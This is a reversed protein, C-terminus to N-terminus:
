CVEKPAILAYTMKLGENIVNFDWMASKFEEFEKVQSFTEESEVLEKIGILFYYLYLDVVSVGCKRACESIQAVLTKALRYHYRGGDFNVKIKSVRKANKRDERKDSSRLEDLRDSVKSIMDSNEKVNHLRMNYGISVMAPYIRTVRLKENVAIYDCLIDVDDNCRCWARESDEEPIPAYAYRHLRDLVGGVLVLDDENDDDARNIVSCSKNM